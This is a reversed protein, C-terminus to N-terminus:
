AADEVWDSRLRRIAFFMLAAALVYFGVVSV